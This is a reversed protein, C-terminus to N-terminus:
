RGDVTVTVITMTTTGVATTPLHNDPMVTVQLPVDDRTALGTRDIPVSVRVEVPFTADKVSGGGDVFTIVTGYGLFGLDNVILRRDVDRPAKIQISTPGTVRLLDEVPIAVSISVLRDDLSVVPDARCWLRGAASPQILLACLVIPMVILVSRRQYM